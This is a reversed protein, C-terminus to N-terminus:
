GSESFTEEVLGRCTLLYRLKEKALRLRSKATPLTTEMADAVESLTLSDYHHLTFTQRQDDPLQLLLENVIQAVEQTEAQDGASALEAPLSQLPDYEEGNREIRNGVRRIMVDNSSRRVHDILLNRAIRFLWGRFTGTPLYDWAARYVRLLTEQILDESLEADRRTNRMFFGFLPGQWEAAIENFATSDGEQLRIMRQDDDTYEHPM